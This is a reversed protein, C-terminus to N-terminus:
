RPLGFRAAIAAAREAKSGGMNGAVGGRAGGYGGGNGAPGSAKALYAKGDKAAFSTVYEHVGIDGLDTEVYATRKGDDSRRVKINDALYKSLMPKHMPDFGAADIAADLSARLTQNDIFSDREALQQALADREQQAKTQTERLTKAHQERLAAIQEDTKGTGASKLQVWADPDFDEPIAALRQRAQELEALREQAKQANAKNATVVGRVKPHADIDELDLVYRGDSEAYLGKVEAPIQDETEYVTKLAM